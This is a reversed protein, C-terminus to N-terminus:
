SGAEAQLSAAQRLLRNAAISLFVVSGVFMLSTALAIGVVGFRQMLVYTLAVNLVLNLLSGWMLLRNARLASILRVLLTGVVAFPIQILLMAQTWAVAESDAPTFAGRQFFLVVIPQSFAILLVVLPVTVALLLRVYTGLTHRLGRWDGAAVMRSFPPLVATSVALAMVGLLLAPLKNAYGLVSVSGPPLMSAMSQSVVATSGMLFAGALMPLYQGIVQRLDDNMGRWRPVLPIGRRALAWALVGAELAAGAVAAAILAEIGWTAGYAAVLAITVFSTIAPAVAVTAFRNGANLIASWTTTLGILVLTPLLLRFALEAQRLKWDPFGAAMAPIVLPAALALVVALLFLISLSLATVSAFLRHAAEPGSREDVRIYTPILAANLSGGVLNIAFQPIVLAILFVDLGDSTGFQRAVVAEKVAAVLKVAVTLGGVTLMVALVGRNVSRNRWGRWRDLSADMAKPETAAAREGSSHDSHRASAAAAIGLSVWFVHFDTVTSTLGAVLWFVVLAFWTASLADTRRALRRMVSWCLWAFLGAGILGYDDIVQLFASHVNQFLPNAESALRASTGMGGGVIAATPSSVLYMIGARWVAERLNFSGTDRETFRGFATSSEAAASLPADTVVPVAPRAPRRNAQKASSPPTALPATTAMAWARSNMWAAAQKVGHFAAHPIAPVQALVVVTVLGVALARARRLSPRLQVALVAGAAFIAITAGRSGLLLSAYFSLLVVLLHTVRVLRSTARLQFATAAILGPAVLTAVFNQNILLGARYLFGSELANWVTWASLGVAALVVGAVLAIETRRGGAHVQAATLAALGAVLLGKAVNVNPIAERWVVGSAIWGLLALYAWQGPMRLSRWDLLMAVTTPLMLLYLVNIATIRGFAPPGPLITNWASYFVWFVAPLWAAIGSWM